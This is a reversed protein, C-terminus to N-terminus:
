DTHQLLMFLNFCSTKKKKKFLDVCHKLYLMYVKYKVKLQPVQVTKESISRGVTRNIKVCNIATRINTAYM